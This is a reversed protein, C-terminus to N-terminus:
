QSHNRYVADGIASLMMYAHWNNFQRGRSACTCRCACLFAVAAPFMFPQSAESNLECRIQGGGFNHLDCCPWRNLTDATIAYCATEKALRGVSVLAIGMPVDEMLLASSDRPRSPLPLKTTMAVTVMASPVWRLTFQLHLNYLALGYM